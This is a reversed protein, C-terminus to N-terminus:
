MIKFAPLYAKKEKVKSIWVQEIRWINKALNTMFTTKGCRIQEAILINGKFKGDYSYRVTM